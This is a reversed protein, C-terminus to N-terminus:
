FMSLNLQQKEEGHDHASRLEYDVLPKNKNNNQRNGSTSKRETLDQDHSQIM